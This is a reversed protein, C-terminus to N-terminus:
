ERHQRVPTRGEIFVPVRSVCLIVLPIESAASSRQLTAVSGHRPSVDHQQAGPSSETTPTSFEGAGLEQQADFCCITTSAAGALSSLDEPARRQEQSRPRGKPRSSSRSFEAVVGFAASVSREGFGASDISFAQTEIRERWMVRVGGALPGGCALLRDQDNHEPPKRSAGERDRRPRSRNVGVLLTERALSLEARRNM